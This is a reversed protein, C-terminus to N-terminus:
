VPKKRMQPCKSCKQWGYPKDIWTHGVVKCDNKLEDWITKSFKDLSGIDIEKKINRRMVYRMFAFVFARFKAKIFFAFKKM